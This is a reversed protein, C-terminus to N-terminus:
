IGFEIPKDSKKHYSKFVIDWYPLVSSYNSDTDDKIVSHHVRHMQPTVIFKRLFLDKHMSVKINSHHFLIVPFLILAHVVVAGISIGLLPLFLFKVVYSLILEGTHFRVATTSNMKKDQHHFKHFFWFFPIVHNLRHWWYLFCDIFLVGLVLQVYYPLKILQLIGFHQDNTYEIFQQLYYGGLFVPVLNIAGIFINYLDHKHDILSKREPFIHESFYIFLFVSGLTYPTVTKIVHLFQIPM